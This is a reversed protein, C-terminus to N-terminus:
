RREMQEKAPKQAHGVGKARTESLMRLSGKKTAANTHRLDQRLLNPRVAAVFAAALSVGVDIDVAAVAATSVVAVHVDHIVAARVAGTPRLAPAPPLLAALLSGCRACGLSWGGLPTPGTRAAAHQPQALTTCSHQACQSRTHTNATCTPRAHQRHTSATHSRTPKAHQSHTSTKRARTRAPQAHRSSNTNTHSHSHSHLHSCTAYSGRRQPRWALIPINVGTGGDGNV